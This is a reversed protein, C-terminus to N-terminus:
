AAKGGVIQKRRESCRATLRAKEEDSFHAAAQVGAYLKSLQDVTASLGIAADVDAVSMEVLGLPRARQPEPKRAVATEADDDDAVVGVMAALAYRRGYSIASGVGQADWKSVPIVLEGVIWEGSSHLLRTTIRVLGEKASPLQLVSLGNESLPGRCAEWISALDAYRSKFHPNTSDKKAGKIAGQAKALAKALEGLTGSTSGFCETVVHESM